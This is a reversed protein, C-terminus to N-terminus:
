AASREGDPHGPDALREAADLGEILDVEADAVAFDMGREALVARALGGQHVDEIPERARVLALDESPSTTRIASGVSAMARPILM